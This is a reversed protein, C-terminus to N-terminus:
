CFVPRPSIKCPTDEHSNYATGHPQRAKIARLYGARYYLQVRTTLFQWVYDHAVSWRRAQLHLRALAFSYAFGSLTLIIGACSPAVNNCWVAIWIDTISLLGHDRCGELPSGRGPLAMLLEVPVEQGRLSSRSETMTQTDITCVLYRLATALGLM